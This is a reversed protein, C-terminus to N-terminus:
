LEKQLVQLKYKDRIITLLEAVQSNCKLIKFNEGYQELIEEQSTISPISANQNDSSESNSHSSSNEQACM